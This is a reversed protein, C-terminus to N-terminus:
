QQCVVGTHCLLSPFVREALCSFVFSIIKLAKGLVLISTIKLISVTFHIYQINSLFFMINMDILGEEM